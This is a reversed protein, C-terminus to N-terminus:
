QYVLLIRPLHKVLEHPINSLFNNKIAAVVLDAQNFVGFKPYIQRSVISSISNTKVEKADLETLIDSIQKHSKGIILLFVIIREKRTIKNSDIVNFKKTFSTSFLALLKSGVDAVTIKQTRNFLAFLENNKDYLPTLTVHYISYDLTEPQSNILFCSASKKTNIALETVKPRFELSLEELDENIEKMSKYIIDNENYQVVYSAYRKSVYLCTYDTGWVIFADNPFNREYFNIFTTLEDNM